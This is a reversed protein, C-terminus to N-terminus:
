GMFITRITGATLTNAGSAAFQIAGLAAGIDVSGGGLMVRGSCSVKHSCTWLTQFHNTLTIEGSSIYYTSNGLRIDFGTTNNNTAFGSATNIASSSSTYGTTIFTSNNTGLRVLLDDTGSLSQGVIFIKIYKVRSPIDYIYNSSNTSKSQFRAATSQVTGDGFTINGNGLTAAM